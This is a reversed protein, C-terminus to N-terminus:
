SLFPESCGASARRSLDAFTTGLRSLSSAPLDAVSELMADVYHGLIQECQERGRPTLKALLQRRDTVDCRRVILGSAELQSLVDTLTGRLIETRESLVAPALREEAASRLTTLVKFGLETCGHEALARQLRRRVADAATLFQLVMRCRQEGQPRKRAAM